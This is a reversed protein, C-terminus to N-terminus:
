DAEKLVGYSLGASASATLTVNGSADNFLEPSLKPLYSVGNAGAADAPVVVSLDQTRGHSCAISTVTVTRTSANTNVMVVRTKGDNAFTDSLGADAATLTVTDIEANKTVSQLPLAAM